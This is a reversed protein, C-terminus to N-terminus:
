KRLDTIKGLIKQDSHFSYNFLQTAVSKAPRWYVETRFSPNPNASRRTNLFSQHTPQDFYNTIHKQEKDRELVQKLSRQVIEIVDLADEGTVTERLEAKARAQLM